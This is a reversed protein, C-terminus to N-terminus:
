KSTYKKSKKNFWKIALINLEALFEQKALAFEHKSKKLRRDKTKLYDKVEEFALELIENEKM